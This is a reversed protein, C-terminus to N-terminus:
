SEEGPDIINERDLFADLRRSRKMINGAIMALRDVFFIMLGLSGLTLTLIGLFELGSM